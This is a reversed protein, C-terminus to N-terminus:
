VTARLIHCLVNDFYDNNTGKNGNELSFTLCIVHNEQPQWTNKQSIQRMTKASHCLKNNKHEPIFTQTVLKEKLTAELFVVNNSFM